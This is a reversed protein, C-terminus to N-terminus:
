RSYASLRSCGAWLDRWRIRAQPLAKFTFAFLLTYVVPSSWMRVFPAFEDLIEAAESLWRIPIMALLTSLTLAIVVLYGMGVVIAASLLRSRLIVLLNDRIGGSRASIGWMENISSQLQLFMASGAWILFLVSIGTALRSNQSGGVNVIIDHVYAAAPEGAQKEVGAVIRWEVDEQSYVRGAISVTLILLPALSLLTYFAISAAHSMARQRNWGIFTERLMVFVSVILTLIRGIM